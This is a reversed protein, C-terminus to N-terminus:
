KDRADDAHLRDIDYARPLFSNESQDDDDESLHAPDLDAAKGIRKIDDIVGLLESPSIM